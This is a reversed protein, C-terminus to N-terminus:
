SYLPMKLDNLKPFSLSFNEEFWVWFNLITDFSYCLEAIWFFDLCSLILLLTWFKEFIRSFLQLQLLQCSGPSCLDKSLKKSCCVTKVIFGVHQIRRSTEIEWIAFIHAKLWQRYDLKPSHFGFKWTLIFRKLGPIHTENTVETKLYSGARVGYSQLMLYVSINM